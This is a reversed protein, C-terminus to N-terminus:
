YNVGRGLERCHNSGMHQIFYLLAMGSAWLHSCLWFCDTRLTLPFLSSFRFSALPASFFLINQWNNVVMLEFVTVYSYLFNNFNNEYYDAQDFPTGQLMPNGEYIQGAWIEMGIIVWIYFTM